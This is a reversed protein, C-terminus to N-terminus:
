LSTVCVQAPCGVVYGADVPGGLRRTEHQSLQNLRPLSSSLTLLSSSQGLGQAGAQQCQIDYTGM